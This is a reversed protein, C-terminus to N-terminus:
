SYHMAIGSAVFKRGSLDSFLFKGLIFCGTPKQMTALNITQGAKVIEFVGMFRFSRTIRSTRIFGPINLNGLAHVHIM